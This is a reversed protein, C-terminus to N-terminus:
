LLDEGKEGAATHLILRRLYRLGASMFGLLVFGIFPHAAEPFRAAYGLDVGFLTGAIAMERLASAICLVLAFGCASGFADAMALAPHSVFGARYTFLTNVAMLPLFVYLHAYVEASVYQRLIAAAGLLFVSSLLVYTMARLFSPIRKGLLTLCLSVPILTAATCVSLAVGYRLDTGVALIPCIGAAQMLVVNNPLFADWFASLVFRVSPKM